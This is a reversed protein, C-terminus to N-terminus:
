PCAGVGGRCTYRCRYAAGRVFFRCRMTYTSGSLSCDEECFVKAQPYGRPLDYMVINSAQGNPDALAIAATKAEACSNDSTGSQYPHDYSRLYCAKSNDAVPSPSGSGLKIGCGLQTRTVGAYRQYFDFVSTHSSFISSNRICIHEDTDCFCPERTAVIPPEFHQGREVDSPSSGLTGSFSCSPTSSSSYTGGMMTCISEYSQDVKSTLLPDIDNAVVDSVIQALDEGTYHCSVLNGSALKVSIPLKRTAENSGTIAKNEKKIVLELELEGSTAPTGSTRVNTVKLSKIRILGNGYKDTKNFIANDNKDKIFDIDRGNNIPQGVGLTYNCADEDYLTRVIRSMMSTIELQTEAKKQVVQQKRTLEALLLSLGGMMGATIVVGMLTFGSNGINLFNRNGM